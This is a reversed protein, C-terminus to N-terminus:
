RYEVELLALALAAVPGEAKPGWEQDRDGGGGGRDLESKVTDAVRRWGIAIATGGARKGIVHGQM